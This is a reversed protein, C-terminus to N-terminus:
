TQLANYFSCRRFNGRADAADLYLKAGLAWASAGSGQPPADNWKTITNGGDTREPSLQCAKYLKKHDAGFRVKVVACLDLVQLVPDPFYSHSSFIESAGNAYGVFGSVVDRVAGSVSLSTRQFQTPKHLARRVVLMPSQHTCSSRHKGVRPFCADGDRM